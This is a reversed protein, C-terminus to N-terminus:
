HGPKLNLHVYTLIFGSLIFFFSVSVYGTRFFNFAVAPMSETTHKLRLLSEHFTLVFMAAFFRLSTLPKLERSKNTVRAMSIGMDKMRPGGSPLQGMAWQGM